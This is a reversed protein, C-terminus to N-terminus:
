GLWADVKDPNDEVWKAAADEPSMKDATIYAAVQNQDENSLQWKEVLDAAPSGSEMFATSAVKKLETEAYDCDVEAKNKDCGEEYPPLNVRAFPIEAHIYHPEWFYGILWEKNKQAREFAELTLDIARDGIAHAAVRWGGRHAALIRNRLVEPDDGLM